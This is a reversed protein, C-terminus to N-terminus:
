ESIRKASMYCLNHGCKLVYPLHDSTNFDTLCINCQLFDKIQSM